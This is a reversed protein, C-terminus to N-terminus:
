GAGSVSSSCAWLSCHVEGSLQLFIQAFLSATTICTLLLVLTALGCTLLPPITLRQSLFMSHAASSDRRQQPPLTSLCMSVEAQVQMYDDIEAKATSCHRKDKMRLPSALACSIDM